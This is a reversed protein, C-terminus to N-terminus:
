HEPHMQSHVIGFPMPEFSSSQKCNLPLMSSRSQPFHNIKNPQELNSPNYLPIKCQRERERERETDRERARQKDTDPYMPPATAKGIILEAVYTAYAGGGLMRMNGLLIQGVEDFVPLHM